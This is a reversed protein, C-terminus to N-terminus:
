PILNNFTALNHGVRHCGSCHILKKSMFQSEIRHKRPREPPRRTRPPEMSPYFRVLKDRVAGDDQTSPM